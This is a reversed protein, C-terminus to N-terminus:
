VIIIDDTLEDGTVLKTEKVLNEVSTFRRTLAEYSENDLKPYWDKPHKNSTIYIKTPIWPKNGLYLINVNVRHGDLLRLFFGIAIEGRYDDFCVIQEGRYETFPHRSHSEVMFANDEEAKRTKGTGTKGWLVIVEPPSYSTRPKWNSTDVEAKLDKWKKSYMTAYSPYKDVFEKTAGDKFYMEMAMVMPPKEDETPIDGFEFPGFKRTELKTCYEKNELPTGKSIELHPGKEKSWKELVKKIGSLSRAHEFRVYGQIHLNNVMEYQYVCYTAKPVTCNIPEFNDVAILALEDVLNNNEDHLWITFCWNRSRPSPM